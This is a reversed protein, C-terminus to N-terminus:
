VPQDDGSPTARASRRLRWARRVALPRGRSPWRACPASCRTWPRRRSSAEPRARRPVSCPAIQGSTPRLAPCVRRWRKSCRTPCERPGRRCCSSTWDPSSTVPRPRADSSGIHADARARERLAEAWPRDILGAIVLEVRRKPRLAHVRRGVPRHGQDTEGHGVDSDSRSPTTLEPGTRRSICNWAMPFSRSCARHLRSPPTPSRRPRPRSACLGTRSATSSGCSSRGGCTRNRAAVAPSSIAKGGGLRLLAAIVDASFGYSHVVHPDFRRVVRTLRRYARLVPPRLVNPCDLNTHEIGLDTLRALYDPSADLCCVVCRISPPLNSALILLHSEMGGIRRGGTVYLVRVEDDVSPTSM